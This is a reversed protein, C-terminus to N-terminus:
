KRRSFYKKWPRWYMRSWAKPNVLEFARDPVNDQFLVIRSGSDTPEFHLILLSDEDQTSWAQGRWTQVVLRNKVVHLNKGRLGNNGFIKFPKGVRASVSVPPGGLAASHLDSTVYTSFLRKVDVGPFDVAQRFYKAM